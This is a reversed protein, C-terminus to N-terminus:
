WGINTKQFATAIPQKKVPPKNPAETTENRKKARAKLDIGSLRLAALAYKLCDLTENRPRTQVWEVYPRTGRMKTVLKEATLQA